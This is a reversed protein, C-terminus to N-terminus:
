TGARAALRSGIWRQMCPREEVDNCEKSDHGEAAGSATLGVLLWPQEGARGVQKGGEKDEERRIGEADRGTTKVPTTPMKTKDQETGM